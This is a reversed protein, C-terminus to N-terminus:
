IKKYSIYILTIFFVYTSGCCNWFDYPKTMKVTFLKGRELPNINESEERKNTKDFSDKNKEINLPQIKIKKESESNFRKKDVKHHSEDLNEM